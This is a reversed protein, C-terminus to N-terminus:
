PATVTLAADLDSLDITTEITQAGSAGPITIQLSHRLLSGDTTSVWLTVNAQMQGLRTQDAASLWLATAVVTMDVDATIKRALGLPLQETGVDQVNRYLKPDALSTGDPLALSGFAQDSTPATRQGTKWPADPTNPRRQFVSQGIAVRRSEAGESSTTLDQDGRALTGTVNSTTTRGPASYRQALQVHATKASATKQMATTLANMPTDASATAGFTLALVLTLGLVKAQGMM